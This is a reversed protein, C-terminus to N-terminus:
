NNVKLYYTEVTLAYKNVTSGIDSHATTFDLGTVNYIRQSDELDKLFSKLQEYTGELNFNVSITNYKKNSDGGNYSGDDTFRPASLLMQSNPGKAINTLEYVIIVPDAGTPLIKELDQPLTNLANFYASNTESLRREYDGVISIANNLDKREKLYASISKKPRYVSGKGSYLPYIFLYSIGFIILILFLNTYIKNKLKESHM